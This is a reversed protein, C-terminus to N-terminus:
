PPATAQRPHGQREGSGATRGFQDGRALSRPAAPRDQHARIETDPFRHVPWRARTGQAPRVSGARAYHRPDAQGKVALGQATEHVDLWRGIPATIDHMWLLLPMRGKAKHEALSRRFAGAQVQDGLMDTEGFVSAIGTFEGADSPESFKVELDLRESM